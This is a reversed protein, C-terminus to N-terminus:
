APNWVNNLDLIWETKSPFIITKLSPCARGWERCLAHEELSDARGVGDIGTPSLDLYSLQHFVSLVSSLGALIRIGSFSYHLTHRLTLKMRLSEVTPLYTSINRLLMPRISMASLDLYRLPVTTCTMRHLNERNVDSDQGVLSLHRVPRGPLISAAADASGRFSSLQPLAEPPLDHLGSRLDCLKLHRLTSSSVLFSTLIPTYPQVNKASDAGLSCSQLNPFRCRHIVSEIAHIPPDQYGRVLNAPGLFLDLSELAVLLQVVAEIQECADLLHQGQVPPVSRDSQWRIYLKRAFDCLHPRRRIAECWWLTKLPHPSQESLVDTIHISSYLIREAVAKFQSSARAAIALTSPDLDHFIAAVLENPLALAM